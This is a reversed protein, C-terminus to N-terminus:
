EAAKLAKLAEDKALAKRQRRSQKVERTWQRIGELVEGQSFGLLGPAKDTAYALIKDLARVDDVVMSQHVTTEDDFGSLLDQLDPDNKTLDEMFGRLISIPRVTRATPRKQPAWAPKYDKLSIVNKAM